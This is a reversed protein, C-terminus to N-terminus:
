RRTEVMQRYGEYGVLRLRNIPDSSRSLKRMHKQMTRPISVSGDRKLVLGTVEPEDSRHYVRWGKTPHLRYGAERIIRQAAIAFDASPPHHWSFVMDDGYRTYTGASHMVRRELAKDMEFNVVNSLAPSTPAGQPLSGRYTTLLTLFDALAESEVRSQWWQKVRWAPTSPFFDAIDATIIYPAGAHPWVHDAISKKRRFGVAAPHVHEDTLYQKLIVQQIAKLRQDPEALERQGGGPKAKTFHRYRYDPSLRGRKLVRLTTDTDM